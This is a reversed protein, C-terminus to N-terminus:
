GRGGGQEPESPKQSVRASNLNRLITEIQANYTNLYTTMEDHISKAAQEFGRIAKQEPATNKIIDNSISSVNAVIKACTSSLDTPNQILINVAEQASSAEIRKISAENKTASESLIKRQIQFMEETIILFFNNPYATMLGALADGFNAFANRSEDVFQNHAKLIAIAAAKEADIINTVKTAPTPAAASSGIAQQPPQLKGHKADHAHDIASDIRAILTNYTNIFSNEITKASHVLALHEDSFTDRAKTDSSKSVKTLWENLPLIITDHRRQLRESATLLDPSYDHKPNIVKGIKRILANIERDNHRSEDPKISSLEDKYGKLKEEFGSDVSLYFDMLSSESNNQTYSLWNDFGPYKSRLNDILRRSEQYHLILEDLFPLTTNYLEIIDTHEYPLNVPALKIYPIGVPHKKPTSKQSDEM